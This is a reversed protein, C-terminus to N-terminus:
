ATLDVPFIHPLCNGQLVGEGEELGRGLFVPFFLFNSESARHTYMHLYAHVCKEQTWFNLSDHLAAIQESPLYPLCLLQSQVLQVPCECNSVAHSLSTAILRGGECSNFDSLSPKNQYFGFSM